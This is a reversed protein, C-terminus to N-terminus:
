GKSSRPDSAPKITNKERIQGNRGHVSVDGGGANSAHAKAAEYAQAQTSSVSAARAAGERKAAWGEPTQFVNYNTTM